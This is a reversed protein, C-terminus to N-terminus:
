LQYKKELSRQKCISYILLKYIITASLYYKIITTSHPWTCTLSVFSFCIVLPQSAADVM